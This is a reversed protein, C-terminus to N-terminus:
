PCVCVTSPLSQYRTSYWFLFPQTDALYELSTFYCPSRSVSQRQLPLSTATESLRTATSASLTILPPPKSLPAHLVPRSAHLSHHPNLSTTLTANIEPTNESNPITTVTIGVIMAFRFFVCSLMLCVVSAISFRM